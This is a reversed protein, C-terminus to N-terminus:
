CFERELAPRVTYHEQVGAADGSDLDCDCNRISDEPHEPIGSCDGSSAGLFHTGDAGVRRHIRAFGELDGNGMRLPSDHAWVGLWLPVGRATWADVPWLRWQLFLECVVTRDPGHDPGARRLHVM